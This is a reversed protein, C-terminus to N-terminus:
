MEKRGFTPLYIVNGSNQSKCREKCNNKYKIDNIPISKEAALENLKDTICKLEDATLRCKAKEFLIKFISPTEALLILNNQAEEQLSGNEYRAITKDGLGLIKAFTVQTAGYKLRIEKIKAPSLLGNKQRYQSYVKEINERDLTEDLIQSGCGKCFRVKSEVTIEQGKVTYSEVVKRIDTGVEKKCCPCYQENM